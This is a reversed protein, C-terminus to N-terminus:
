LAISRRSQQQSVEQKLLADVMAQEEPSIADIYPLGTLEDDPRPGTEGQVVIDLTGPM